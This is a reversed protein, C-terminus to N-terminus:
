KMKAEKRLLKKFKSFNITHKYHKTDFMPISVSVAKLENLRREAEALAKTKEILACESKELTNKLSQRKGYNYEPEVRLQRKYGNLEDEATQKAKKSTVAHQRAEELMSNYKDTIIKKVYYNSVKIDRATQSLNEKGHGWAAVIEADNNIIPAYHDLSFSKSCESCLYRQKGRFTGNKKVHVNNKCTPCVPKERNM